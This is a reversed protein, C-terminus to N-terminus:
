GEGLTTVDETHLQPKVALLSCPAQSIIREATTGTILTRLNSKGRNGLVVLDAGCEKQHELIADRVNIREMVLHRCVSLKHGSLLPSLFQDLETQWSEMGAAEPLTIPPILGIYDMSLAMASQNVYLCDLRANDREAILRAEAVAKASTDSFDVCALVQRFPGKFYEHVLLVDSPVKRVCKSAIAGLQNLGHERGRTGLVLLDASLKACAESLAIFPNQIVVCTNVLEAGLDSEILFKRMRVSAKEVLESEEMEHAKLVREAADPEIAHVATVPSGHFSAFRLATNLAARCADSFDIGVVLHRFPKM